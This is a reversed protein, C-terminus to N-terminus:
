FGKNIWYHFSELKHLDSGRFEYYRNRLLWRARRKVERGYVGTLSLINLQFRIGEKKLRTYDNLSLYLYREPHALLPFYGKARIMRLLVDLGLPQSVCSIEILLHNGAVPLLEEALLYKEFGGDLMYEAGLSLKLPGSYADQLQVFRERLFSAQNNPYDEMVHPTLTVEGVRLEEFYRLVALAEKLTSVGDDVGPLIHSHCDSFNVFINSERLSTKKRFLFM